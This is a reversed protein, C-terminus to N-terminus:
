SAMQRWNQEMEAADRDVQKMLEYHVLLNIGFGFVLVGLLIGYWLFPLLAVSGILVFQLFVFWGIQHTSAQLAAEYYAAAYKNKSRKLRMPCIGTAYTTIILLPVLDAWFSISNVQLIYTVQGVLIALAAIGLAHVSLCKKKYLFSYTRKYRSQLGAKFSESLPAFGKVGFSRHAQKMAEELSMQRNETMLAEVKCAFHDLLELMVAPDAFAASRSRIFQQLAQLEEKNLVRNDM